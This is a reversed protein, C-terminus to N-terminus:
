DTVVTVRSSTRHKKVTLMPSSRPLYTISLFHHVATQWRCRRDHNECGEGVTDINQHGDTCDHAQHDNTLHVTVCCVEAHRFVISPDSM